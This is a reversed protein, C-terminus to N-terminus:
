HLVFGKKFRVELLHPFFSSVPNEGIKGTRCPLERFGLLGLISLAMRDGHPARIVVEAHTLATHNQIGHMLREFGNTGARTSRSIDRSCAVIVHLQFGLQCVQM